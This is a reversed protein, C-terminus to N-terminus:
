PPTPRSPVGARRGAGGAVLPQFHVSRWRCPCDSLRTTIFKYVRLFSTNGMGYFLVCWLVREVPIEGRTSCCPVFTPLVILVKFFQLFLVHFVEKPVGGDQRGCYAQQRGTRGLVVVFHQFALGPASEGHKPFRCLFLRYYYTATTSSPTIIVIYLYRSAPSAVLNRSTTSDIWSVMYRKCTM